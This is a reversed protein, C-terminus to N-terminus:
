RDSNFSSDIQQRLSDLLRNMTALATEMAAFRELLHERERELRENLNEVRVESTENQGELADIENTILGSTQDVLADLTHYLNAGIGVSVDLQIDSASATGTYFIRLGQAGGEDVTLLSGNVTVSGDDSGDALGDINASVIEGGAYAVNLKYGTDNFSTNGDFGVLVVNSSSSSLGFAFLERVADAQNLLAEDLKTEDIALTNALLPDSVAGPGEITIGIEALVAFTPDNAAAATSIGGSLRARVDSLASSGALVGTTEDEDANDATVAQANIFSRLENYADVTDVIASKVQNLDREVDLKITTDVEAKFLSLTVGEFIDDITNSQREIVTALGDVQLRANLGDQLQNKIAGTDLVGLSELVSGSTDTATILSDTGTEDATLILTHETDSLSVISATVGSANDGSNAANIKERVELLNDTGEITIARGNVEFTGSLGLDDDLAGAVTDSAVKHATATQLIEITHNTAQAQNTFTVGILNAAESPATADARSTTAFGQKAAFIDGSNDFSVAGRLTEVASRLNLTLARMDEFAAIKAQNDSIRQEIRDVPIRKVAILADVTGQLDIGSALGSFSARGTNDVNLSDFNLNTAM